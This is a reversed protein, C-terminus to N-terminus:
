GGYGSYAGSWNKYGSWPMSGPMNLSPMKTGPLAQSLLDALNGGAQLSDLIGGGQQQEPQTARQATVYDHYAAAPPTYNQGWSYGPNLKSGVKFDNIDYKLDMAGTDDGMLSGGIGGAASGLGAGLATGVGPFVFTGLLAGLGAGGLQGYQTTDQRNM